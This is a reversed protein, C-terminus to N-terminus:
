EASFRKKKGLVLVTLLAAGSIGMCLSMELVRSADGTEPTTDLDYYNVFVPNGEYAKGDNTVTVTTHLEGTVADKTVAIKVEYEADSYQVGKVETDV